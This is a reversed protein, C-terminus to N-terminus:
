YGEEGEGEGVSGDDGEGGSFYNEANYDNDADDAEDEEFESDQPADSAADDDGAPKGTAAATAGDVSEDDVGADDDKSDDLTTLRNSASPKKGSTANSSGKRKSKKNRTTDNGPMLEAPTFDPDADSATLVALLIMLSPVLMSIRPFKRKALPVFADPKARKKKSYTEMSDFADAVRKGTGKPGTGFGNQERTGTWWVSKERRAKLERSIAVLERDKTTLPHPIVLDIPQPSSNARRDCRQQSAPAM